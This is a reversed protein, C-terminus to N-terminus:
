TWTGPALLRSLNLASSFADEHFGYRFYSGCFYIGSLRENLAPLERQARVAGDSFLPHEYEIRRLINQPQIAEEGNISIFYNRETGVGQLRNVWYITSPEIRSQADYNVRYNWSSWCLSTRPMVGADTHVLAVNPQYKFQDLADREREHADELMRLAQDAHCALIVHDYRETHGSEDTVSAGGGTVRRVAVAGRNLHFRDLVPAVIREVYSRAGGTVTLWPHQTHLGLFGHNYFFRLLTMAPFQLMQDPPTSWVACSMPLLYYNLFDDGYRRETAFEGLTLSTERGAHVAETAERNFRNIQLLMRWFRGNFLNRRQGFLHNVSSGCFELRAPLHQVSFSMSSSRSAVGLERFLRTLNPYTVENYTMFGTDVPIPGSQEDISITNTHGGIYGAKEYVTLQYRHQLFHVCGLGAIGTGIIAIREM